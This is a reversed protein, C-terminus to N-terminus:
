GTEYIILGTLIDGVVLTNPSLNTFSAPIGGFTTQAVLNISNVDKENYFGYHVQGTGPSNFYRIHFISQPKPYSGSIPIPLNISMAGTTPVTAFIYKFEINVISGIKQWRAYSGASPTPSNTAGTIFSAISASQVSTNTGYNSVFPQTNM